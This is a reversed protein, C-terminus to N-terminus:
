VIKVKNTVLPFSLFVHALFLDHTVLDGHTLTQSSPSM